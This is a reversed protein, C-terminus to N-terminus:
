MGLMKQEVDKDIGALRRKAQDGFYTDSYEDAVRRFMKMAEARHGGGCRLLLMGAYYYGSAQDRRSTSVSAYEIYSQVAEDKRGANFLARPLSLRARMAASGRPAEKVVALLMEAAEAALGQKLLQVGTLVRAWRASEKGPYRANLIPSYRSVSLSDGSNFLRALEDVIADTTAQEGKGIADAETLGDKLAAARAKAGVADAYALFVQEAKGPDGMARHCASALRQAELAEDSTPWRGILTSIGRLVGEYEPLADADPGLCRKARAFKENLAWLAEKPGKRSEARGVDTARSKPAVIPVACLVDSRAGRSSEPPSATQRAVVGGSNANQRSGPSSFVGLIASGASVLAIVAATAIAGRALRRWREHAAVKALVRTRVNAAIEEIEEEPVAPPTFLTVVRRYANFERQCHACARIHRRVEDVLAPEDLSTDELAIDIMVGRYDEYKPCAVAGM